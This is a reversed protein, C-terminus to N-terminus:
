SPLRTLDQCVPLFICAHMPENYCVSAADQVTHSRSNPLARVSAVQWQKHPSLCEKLMRTKDSGHQLSSSNTVLMSTVAERHVAAVKSPTANPRAAQFNYVKKRDPVKPPPSKLESSANGGHVLYQLNNSFAKALIPVNLVANKPGKGVANKPGKGFRVSTGRHQVPKKEAQGQRCASPVTADTSAPRVSM